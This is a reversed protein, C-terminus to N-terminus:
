AETEVLDFNVYRNGAKSTKMVIIIDPKQDDPLDGFSEDYKMFKEIFAKVETKYMTKDKANYIVLVQHQKGTSDDYTHTNFGVPSIVLGDCDKLNIHTDNLAKFKMAGTFEM